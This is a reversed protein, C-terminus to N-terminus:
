QGSRKDKDKMDEGTVGRVTMREVESSPLKAVPEVNLSTYLLTNEVRDREKVIVSAVRKAM